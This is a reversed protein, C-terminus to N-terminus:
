QPDTDAVTSIEASPQGEILSKRMVSLTRRREEYKRIIDDRRREALTTRENLANITLLNGVLTRYLLTDYSVYAVELVDNVLEKGSTDNQSAKLAYRKLEAQNGDVGLKLRNIWYDSFLQRVIVDPMEAELAAKSMRRLRMIEWQTDALEKMAHYELIDQPSYEAVFDALMADYVTEDEFWLVPRHEFIYGLREPVLPLAISTAKKKSIKM